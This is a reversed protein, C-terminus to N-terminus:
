NIDDASIAIRVYATEPHKRDAPKRDWKNKGLLFSRCVHRKGTEPGQPNSQIGNPYEKLYDYCWERAKFTGFLDPANPMLAAYEWEAETILRCPKNVSEAIKTVLKQADDWDGFYFPHKSSKDKIGLIKSAISYPIPQESIYYTSLNVQHVPESDMRLSGSGDYGMNFSGGRIIVMNIDYGSVSLSISEPYSDKDTIEYYGVQGNPFTSQNSNVIKSSETDEIKYNEVSFVNSMPIVTERGAIFLTIHDAPDIEKLEGIVIPGNKLTVKLNSTQASSFACVLCFVILLYKKM